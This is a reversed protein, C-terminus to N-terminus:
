QDQILHRPYTASSTLHESSGASSGSQNHYISSLSHRSFLDPPGCPESYRAVRRASPPAVEDAKLGPDDPTEEDEVSQFM